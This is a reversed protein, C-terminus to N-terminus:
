FLFPEGSCKELNIGDVLMKRVEMYFLRSAQKLGYIAVKLSGVMGQETRDVESWGEPLSVYM